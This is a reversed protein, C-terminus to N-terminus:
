SDQSMAKEEFQGDVAEVAGGRAAGTTGVLGAPAAREQGQAQQLGGGGAGPPGHCRAALPGTVKVFPLSRSMITM